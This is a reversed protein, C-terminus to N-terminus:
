NDTNRQEPNMGIGNKIPKTPVPTPDSESLFSVGSEFANDAGLAVIMDNLSQLGQTMSDLQQDAHEAMTSFQKFVDQLKQTEDPNSNKEILNNARNRAEEFQQILNERASSLKDSLTKIGSSLSKIEPTEKISVQGGKLSKISNSIAQVSDTLKNLKQGTEEKIGAVESKLEVKTGELGESTVYLAKMLSSNTSDIKRAFDGFQTQLSNLSKNVHKELTNASKEIVQLQEENSKRWQPLLENLNQVSTKTTTVDSKFANVDKNLSTLESSLKGADNKVSTHYTNLTSALDALKETQNSGALEILDKITNSSAEIKSLISTKVEDVNQNLNSLSSALSSTTKGTKDVSSIIKTLEQATKEQHGTIADSLDKTTKVASAIESSQNELLSKNGNVTSIVQDFREKEKDTLDLIGQALVAAKEKFTSELENQRTTITEGISSINRSIISKNNELTSTISKAETSIVRQNEQSLDKQLGDLRYDVYAAMGVWSGVITVLGAVVLSTSSRSENGQNSALTSSGRSLPPSNQPKTM